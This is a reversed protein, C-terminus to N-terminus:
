CGPQRYVKYHRHPLIGIAEVGLSSIAWNAPSIVTYDHTTKM